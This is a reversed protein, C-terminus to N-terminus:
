FRQFRCIKHVQLGKPNQVNGAFIMKTKKNIIEDITLIKARNTKRPTRDEVILKHLHSPALALVGKGKPVFLSKESGQGLSTVTGTLCQKLVKSTLANSLPTIQVAHISFFFPVGTVAPIGVDSPVGVDTTVGPASPIYVVASLWYCRSAM